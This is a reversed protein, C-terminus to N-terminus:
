HPNDKDLIPVDLVWLLSHVVQSGCVQFEIHIAHNKVKGLPGHLVTVYFFNGSKVSFTKSIFSTQILTSLVLSFDKNQIDADSSGGRMLFSYYIDARAM